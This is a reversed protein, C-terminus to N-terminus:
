TQVLERCNCPITRNNVGCFLELYISERGIKHIQRLPAHYSGILSVVFYNCVSHIERKTYKRMKFSAIKELHALPFQKEWWFSCSFAILNKWLATWTVNSHKELSIKSFFIKLWLQVFPSGLSQRRRCVAQGRTHEQQPAQSPGRM